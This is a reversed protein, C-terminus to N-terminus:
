YKAHLNDNNEKIFRVALLEIQKGYKLGRADCIDRFQNYVEQSIALNAYVKKNVM